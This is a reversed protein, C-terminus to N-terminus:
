SGRLLKKAHRKTIPRGLLKDMKINKFKNIGLISRQLDSLCDIGGLSLELLHKSILGTHSYRFYKDNMKEITEDWKKGPCLFMLRKRANSLLLNLRDDSLIGIEFEDFKKPINSKSYRSLGSWAARMGKYQCLELYERPVGSAEVMASFDYVLIDGFPNNSAEYESLLNRRKQRGERKEIRLVDCNVVPLLDNSRKRRNWASSKNYAAAVAKIGFYVTEIKGTKNNVVCQMHQSGKKHLVVGNMKGLFDLSTDIRTITWKEWVDDLSVALLRPIIKRVENLDSYSMYSPNLKIKCRCDNRLLVTLKIGFNGIPISCGYNYGELRDPLSYKKANQVVNNKSTELDECKGTLSLFDFNLNIITFKKYM